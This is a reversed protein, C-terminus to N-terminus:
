LQVKFIRLSEVWDISVNGCGEVDNDDNDDGKYDHRYEAIM